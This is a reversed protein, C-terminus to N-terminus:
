VRFMLKFYIHYYLFFIVKIKYTPFIYSEQNRLIKWIQSLKGKNQIPLFASIVLNQM